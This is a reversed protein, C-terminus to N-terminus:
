VRSQVFRVYFCQIEPDFRRVMSEIKLFMKVKVLRGSWM